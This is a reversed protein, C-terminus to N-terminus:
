GKELADKWSLSQALTEQMAPPNKVLWAVLPAGHKIIFQLFCVSCMCM